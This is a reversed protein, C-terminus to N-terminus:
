IKISHRLTYDVIINEIQQCCIEKHSYVLAQIDEKMQEIKEIERLPETEGEIMGNGLIKVATEKDYVEDFGQRRFEIILRDPNKVAVILFCNKKNECLLEEYSRCYVGELAYGRKESNRDAFFDIKVGSKKLRFYTELGYDGMGYICIHKRCRGTERSMEM